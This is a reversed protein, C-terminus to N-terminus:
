AKAKWSSWVRRPVGLRAMISGAAVADTSSVIAGLVFSVAWPLGLLAHAVLAVGLTTVIVLGFALSPIPRLNARFDRWSTHLADWYLLPPLFLLLVIDPELM